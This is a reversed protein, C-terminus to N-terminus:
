QPKLFLRGREVGEMEPHGGMKGPLDLSAEWASAWETDELVTDM